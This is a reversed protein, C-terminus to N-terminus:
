HVINRMKRTSLVTIIACYIASTGSFLWEDLAWSEKGFFSIASGITFVAWVLTPVEWPKLITHRLQPVGALMLAIVTATTATDHDYNLRIYWCCVILFAVFTELGGWSFQRRIILVIATITSGITFGVMIPLNAGEPNQSSHYLLLGDLIAWLLYSAFSQNQNENIIYYIGILYASCGFIGGIIQITENSM